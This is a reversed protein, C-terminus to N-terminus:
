LGYLTMIYRPLPQLGTAYQFLMVPPPIDSSSMALMPASDSDASIPSYSDSPEENSVVRSVRM